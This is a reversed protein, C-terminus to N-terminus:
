KKLFVYVQKYFDTLSILGWIVIEAGCFRSLLFLNKWMVWVLVVELKRHFLFYILYAKVDVSLPIM